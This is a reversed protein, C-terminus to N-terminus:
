RPTSAWRATEAVVPDPDDCWPAALGVADHPLVEPLAYLACARLWPDQWFHDEDQVLLRLWTERDVEAVPAYGALAGRRTGDDLTPDVLTLVLASVSRGLTVELMELAGSRERTDESGLAALGARVARPDHGLSVLVEALRRGAVLEDRLAGALPELAPQGDLTALVSLCRDARDAQHLLAELLPVQGPSVTDVGTAALALAAAEVVVPDAHVLHGLLLDRSRPTGAEGLAHVLRGKALPSAAPDGLMNAALPLLHDANAAMADLLEGPAEERAALALLPEAFFPSPAAIAAELAPTLTRPHSAGTTWLERARAGVEDDRGVLAGAAMLRLAPDDEDLLPRVVDVLEPSEDLDSSGLWAVGILRRDASGDELLTRVQRALEPSDADALAELGTRVDRPDGSAVLQTVADRSAPDDVRLSTPDWARRSLVSRLNVGYERYALVAARAWVASLLLAVVAVTEVGLDLADNVLLLAGVLGLAIPVGAGEVLTQAQLRQQPLLAQYTANISTRTTGDTLAIDTVQQACVLVFFVLAGVGTAYGTLTTIVLLM